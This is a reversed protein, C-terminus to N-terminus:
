LGKGSDRQKQREAAQQAARQAAQAAQQKSAAAAKSRDAARAADRQAQTPRMAEKDMMAIGEKALRTELVVRLAEPGHVGAWDNWDTGADAERFSPLLVIGGVAEAAAEAKEKGANPLPVERRPLHHDNDAAIVIPADPFKVRLAQTVALLNNANFAVVAPFGTAQRVTAVTAFGEGIIIPRNGVPEGLTAFLGDVRGGPLFLKKGVPDAPIRQVNHLYGAADRLPLVLNGDKDLRMGHAEVGKRELYPHGRAPKAGKWIAFARKGARTQAAIREAERQVQRAERARRDEATAGKVARKAVWKIDPENFKRIIGNPTGDLHGLYSAARKQGRGNIRDANHWKGDMKPEGRIIVGARRLEDAFEAQAQHPEM